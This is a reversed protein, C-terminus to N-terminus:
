YTSEYYVGDSVDSVIVSLIVSVSVRIIIPFHFQIRQSQLPKVQHNM